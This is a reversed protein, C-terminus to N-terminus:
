NGSGLGITSFPFLVCATAKPFVVGLAIGLAVSGLAWWALVDLGVPSPGLMLRGLVGIWFGAIGGILAGIARDKSTAPAGWWAVFRQRERQLLTAIM